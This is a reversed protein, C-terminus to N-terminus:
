IVSVKSMHFYWADRIEQKEQCLDNKEQSTTLSLSRDAVCGFFDKIPSFNNKRSQLM